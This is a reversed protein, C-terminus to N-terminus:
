IVLNNSMSLTLCVVRKKLPKFNLWDFGFRHVDDLSGPVDYTGKHLISYIRVVDGLFFYLHHLYGRLTKFSSLKKSAPIDKILKQTLLDTASNSQATVIITSKEKSKYVQKIAEVFTVTKGTGPPGFLIYPLRGSSGASIHSVAQLQEKNKYISKDFLEVESLNTVNKVPVKKESPFFRSILDPKANQLALRM